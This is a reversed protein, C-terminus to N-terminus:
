RSSFFGSILEEAKPVPKNFLKNMAYKEIGSKWSVRSALSLRKKVIENFLNIEGKSTQYSQQEDKLIKLLLVTGENGLSNPNNLYSIEMTSRRKESNNRTPISIKTNKRCTKPYFKNNEPTTPVNPVNPSKWPLHNTVHVRRTMRPSELYFRLKEEFSVNRERKTVMDWTKNANIQQKESQNIDSSVTSIIPETDIRYSYGFRSKRLRNTSKMIEKKLVAKSNDKNVKLFNIKEKHKETKNVIEKLKKQNKNESDLSMFKEPNVENFYTEKIKKIIPTLRSIEGVTEYPGGIASHFGGKCTKNPKIRNQAVVVGSSSRHVVIDQTEDLPLHKNIERHIESDNSKKNM